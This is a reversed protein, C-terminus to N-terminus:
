MSSLRSEMEALSVSSALKGEVKGQSERAAVDVSARLPLREEDFPDACPSNAEVGFSGPESAGALELGRRGRM